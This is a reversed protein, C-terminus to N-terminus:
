RAAAAERGDPSPGPQALRENLWADASAVDAFHATVSGSVAFGDDPIHGDQADPWIVAIGRCWAQLFEGNAELSRTAFAVAGPDAAGSVAEEDEYVLALAFPERRRLLNDFAILQATADALTFPGGRTVVVIPWRDDDFQIM